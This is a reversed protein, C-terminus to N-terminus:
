CIPECTSTDLTCAPSCVPTGEYNGLDACSAGGLDTGDCAEGPEAVGNGCVSCSSTDLRCAGTCSLVGGSFGLGTCTAEGLDAGDCEEGPGAYGDGCGGSGPCDSVELTCDPKCGLTGPGYGLSECTAGNLAAGDCAEGPDVTGNGCTSFGMVEVRDVRYGFGAVYPDSVLRIRVVDGPIIVSNVDQKSGNLIQYLHGAGDFLYINDCAGDLCGSARETEIREFHLRLAPAGPHRVEQWEDTWDYYTGSYDRRNEVVTEVEALVDPFTAPPTPERLLGFRYLVRQLAGLNQGGTLNRDADLLAAVGDEFETRATYSLQSELIVRDAEEGGLENRIAWLAASWIEGDYHVEQMMHEPYHKTGDLRRLCPPDDTSFAVGDWEGLCAPDLVQPSLSAAISAALYDGFGEGISGGEHRYGFGPAINDHIAHGYEHLIVDADEGDDVGGTGATIARTRPDYWSNEEDSGNAYVVQRRANVDTFGMEQLFNQTRDIHFYVNTEEFGRESRDFDFVLDERQTRSGTMSRKSDVWDGRLYGTGDLRPLVARFRAADLLDSTADGNDRLSTNGTSAMPNPDFVLGTGDVHKLRDRVELVGGGVADVFVLFSGYPEDPSVEVRFALAPAGDEAHIGLTAESALSPTAVLDLALHAREIAEEPTLAPDPPWFDGLPAHAFVMDKVLTRGEEEVVHVVVEGDFVPLGKVEQRFRLYRGVLGRKEGHLVLEDVDRRLGLDAAFGVLVSRAAAEPENRPAVFAGHIRHLGHTGRHYIVPEESNATLARTSAQLCLVGGSGGPTEDGGTGGAGGGGDGGGSGDYHGSPTTQGCGVALPVLLLAMGLFRM